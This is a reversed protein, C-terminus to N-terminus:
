AVPTGGPPPVGDGAVLRVAAASVILSAAAILVVVGMSRGMALRATPVSVVAQVAFLIAISGGSLSRSAFGCVLPAVLVVGVGAAAVLAVGRSNAGLVAALSVMVVFSVSAGRGPARGARGHLVATPAMCAAATLAPETDPVSAWVGALSVAVFLPTWVGLPHVPPPDDPPLVVVSAVALVLAVWPRVSGVAASLLVSLALASGVWRRRIRDGFLLEALALAAGLLLGFSVVSSAHNM